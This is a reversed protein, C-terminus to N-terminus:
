SRCPAPTVNRLLYISDWHYPSLRANRPKKLINEIAIQLSNAWRVNIKMQCPFNSFALSSLCRKYINPPSLLSRKCLDIVFPLRPWKTRHFRGENQKSKNMWSAGHYNLENSSYNDVTNYIGSGQRQCTPTPSTLDTVLPFAHRIAARARPPPAPTPCSVLVWPHLHPDAIDAQKESLPAERTDPM